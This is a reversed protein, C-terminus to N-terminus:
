VASKFSYVIKLGTVGSATDDLDWGDLWAYFALNVATGKQMDDAIRITISRYHDGATAGGKTIVEDGAQAVAYNATADASAPDVNQNLTVNSSKGVVQADNGSAIHTATYYGNGDGTTGNSLTGYNYGTTETRVANDAASYISIYTKFGSAARYVNEATSGNAGVIIFITLELDAGESENNIVRVFKPVVKNGEMGNTSRNEGGTVMANFFQENTFTTIATKGGLKGATSSGIVENPSYIGNPLTWDLGISSSYTLTTGSLSGGYLLWGSTAETTIQTEVTTATQSSFWAYTATSLAVVVVVIMAITTILTSKKM